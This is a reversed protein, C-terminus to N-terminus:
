VYLLKKPQKLAVQCFIFDLSFSLGPPTRTRPREPDRVERALLLSPSVSGRAPVERPPALSGKGSAWNLAPAAAQDPASGGDTQGDARGYRPPTSLSSTVGGRAGGCPIRAHILFSHVRTPGAWGLGGVDAKRGGPTFWVGVPSPVLASCTDLSASAGLRCQTCLCGPCHHPAQIGWSHGAGAQGWAWYGEWPSCSAVGWGAGDSGTWSAQCRHRLALLSTPDQAGM